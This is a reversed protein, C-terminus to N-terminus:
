WTYNNPPKNKQNELKKGVYETTVCVSCLTNSM